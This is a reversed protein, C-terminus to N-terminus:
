AAVQTKHVDMLMNQATKHFLQLSRYVLLGNDAPTKKGVM